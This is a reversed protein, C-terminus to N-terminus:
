FVACVGRESSVFPIHEGSFSLRLDDDDDDNDHLIIVGM